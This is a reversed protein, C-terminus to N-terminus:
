PAALQARLLADEREPVPWFYLAGRVNGIPHELAVIDDLVLAHPGAFWRSMLRARELGFRSVLRSWGASEIGAEGAAGLELQDAPAASVVDVICAVAVIASTMAAAPPLTVRDAAYCATKVYGDPPKKKASAHIAFREGPKISRGYLAPVRALGDLGRRLQPWIRNELHKGGHGIGWAMPQVLSLALMPETM